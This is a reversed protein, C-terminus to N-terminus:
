LNFFKPFFLFIDAQANGGETNECVAEHVIMRVPIVILRIEFIFLLKFLLSRFFTQINTTIRSPGAFEVIRFFIVLHPHAPTSAYKIEQITPEYNRRDFTNKILVRSFGIIRFSWAIIIPIVKKRM